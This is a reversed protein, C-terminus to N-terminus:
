QCGGKNGSVHHEKRFAYESCNIQYKAFLAPKTSKVFDIVEKRADEEGEERVLLDYAGTLTGQNLYTDSTSYNKVKVAGRADSCLVAGPATTPSSEPSKFRNGVQKYGVLYDTVDHNDNYYDVMEFWPNDSAAYQAKREAKKRLMEQQDALSMPESKGSASVPIDKIVDMFEDYTIEAVERFEPLYRGGSPHMSYPGLVYSRHGPFRVDGLDDAFVIKDKRYPNDEPIDTVKLYIHRGKGNVRGTRVMFTEPLRDELHYEANLREINDADIITLTIPTVGYNGLGNTDKRYEDIFDASYRYKPDGYKGRVTKLLATYEEPSQTQMQPHDNNWKEVDEMTPNLMSKESYVRVFLENRLQDPVPLVQYYQSYDGM